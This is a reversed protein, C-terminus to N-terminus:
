IKLRGLTLLLFTQTAATCMQERPLLHMMPLGVVVGLKWNGSFSCCFDIDANAIFLWITTLNLMNM